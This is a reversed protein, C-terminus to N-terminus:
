RLARDCASPSSLRTSGPGRSRYKPLMKFQKVFNMLLKGVEPTQTSASGVWRGLVYCAGALIRPGGRGFPETWSLVILGAIWGTVRM